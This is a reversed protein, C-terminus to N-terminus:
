FISKLSKNQTLFLIFNKTLVILKKSPNDEYAKLIKLVIKLYTKMAKNLYNLEFKM